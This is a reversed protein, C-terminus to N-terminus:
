KGVVARVFRGLFPLHGQSEVHSKPRHDFLNSANRENEQQSEAPFLVIPLVHRLPGRCAFFICKEPLDAETSPVVGSPTCRHLWDGPWSTKLPKPATEARRHRLSSSRYPWRCKGAVSRTWLVTQCLWEHSCHGFWHTLAHSVKDRGQPKFEPRRYM